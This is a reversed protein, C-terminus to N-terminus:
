AELTPETATELWGPRQQWRPQGTHVIAGDGAQSWRMEAGGRKAYRSCSMPLYEQGLPLSSIGGGGLQAARIPDSVHWTM